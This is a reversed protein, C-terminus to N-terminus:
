DLCQITTFRSENNLARILFNDEHGNVIWTEIKQAQALATADLKSIMGGTGQHSKVPDIYKRVEDINKVVPITVGHRDYIGYTNSALILKEVHLLCAVMASLKDNDGFKIEETATTDNENIVPCINNSLLAEITNVINNRSTANNFDSYSLLCQGIPIDFDRFSEYIMKMLFPQGIAALAQKEVIDTGMKELKIFQKAAAIAGSSVLILDYGDRLQHVQTAIDELKARSIKDKDKTLTATGLKLLLKPKDLRAM